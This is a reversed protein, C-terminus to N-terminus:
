VKINILRGVPGESLPRNVPKADDIMKIAAAGDVKLQSQAKELLAVDLEADLRADSSVEPLARPTASSIRM